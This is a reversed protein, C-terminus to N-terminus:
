KSLAGVWVGEDSTLWGSPDTVWVGEKFSPWGSLVGIWVEEDSQDPVGPMPWIEGAKNIPTRQWSGCNIQSAPSV